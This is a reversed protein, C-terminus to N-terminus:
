IGVTSTTFVFKTEVIMMETVDFESTSSQPPPPPPPTSTSVVKSKSKSDSASESNLKTDIIPDTLSTNGGTEDDSDFISQTISESDVTVNDPNTAITVVSIARSAKAPSNILIVPNQGTGTTEDREASM